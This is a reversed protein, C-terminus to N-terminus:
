DDEEEDHAPKKAPKGLKKSSARPAPDDEDEPDEPKQFFQRLVVALAAIVIM